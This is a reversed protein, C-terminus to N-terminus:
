LHEEDEDGYSHNHILSSLDRMATCFFFKLISSFHSKYVASGCQNRFTRMTKTGYKCGKLNLQIEGNM